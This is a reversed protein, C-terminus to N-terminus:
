GLKHKTTTFSRLQEREVLRVSVLREREYPHQVHTMKFNSPWTRVRGKNGWVSAYNGNGFHEKIGTLM